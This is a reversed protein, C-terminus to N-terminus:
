HDNNLERVWPDVVWPQFPGAPNEPLGRNEGPPWTEKTFDISSPGPITVRTQQPDCISSFSFSLFSPAMARMLDGTSLFFKKVRM